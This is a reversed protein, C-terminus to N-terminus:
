PTKNQIKSFAWRSPSTIPTSSPRGTKALLGGLVYSHKGSSLIDSWGLTWGLTKPEIPRTQCVRKGGQGAARCYLRDCGSLGCSKTRCSTSWNLSPLDRRCTKTRRHRQTPRKTWCAVLRIRRRLTKIQHYSKSHLWLQENFRIQFFLHIALMIVLAIGVGIIYDILIKMIKTLQLTSEQRRKTQQQENTLWMVTATKIEFFSLVANRTTM